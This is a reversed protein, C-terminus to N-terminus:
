VVFYFIIEETYNEANYNLKDTLNRTLFYKNFNLSFVCINECFLRLMVFKDWLSFNSCNLFSLDEESYLPTKLGFAGPKLWFMWFWCDFFGNTLPPLGDFFGETPFFDRSGKILLEVEGKLYFRFPPLFVMATTDLPRAFFLSFLQVGFRTVTDGKMLPDFDGYLYVILM